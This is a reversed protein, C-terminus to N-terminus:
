ILAIILYISSIHHEGYIMGVLMPLLLFLAEFKLIWGIIYEILKYNM